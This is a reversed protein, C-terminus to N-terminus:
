TFFWDQTGKLPRDGKITNQSYPDFWKSHVGVAEILRWRDPVPIQDTPFAEPPPADLGKANVQPAEAPPLQERRGPRRRQPEGDPTTSAAPPPDAAPAGMSAALLDGIVDAARARQALPLTAILPAFLLGGRM